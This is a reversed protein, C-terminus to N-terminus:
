ANSSKGRAASAMIDSWRETVREDNFDQARRFASQRIPALKEPPTRAVKKIVKAMMDFRGAPVLYGDVGDTIVDAPGYPIDYSIPICGAAMSEIIALPQGESTSTLLSFSAEQLRAAADDVYGHLTVDARPKSSEIVKEIHRRRSGDGYVDLSPQPRRSRIATWRSTAGAVAKVAHSVRKRKTMSALMAGKHSPRDLGPEGVPLARGNPCVYRNAGPGLLLDVDDLQQQTLLVVADWDDLHEFAYKRGGALEGHPREAGPVLHSGHVLYMTIVDPRKYQSLHNASTKSDVIFWAIPDRPLSDLWFHYLNWVRYWTGLPKGDTDCLTVSRSHSGPADRRDSVLLTGDERFYDVQVIQSEADLLVNRLPHAHDGRDGLPAFTDDPRDDFTPAAHALRSADWSRLDEWLNVMRMGDIMDGRERLQTRVDDYDERFEYTVITVEVGALRVFARSRHLMASTMGAYKEPIGWMVAYHSGTPLEIEPM